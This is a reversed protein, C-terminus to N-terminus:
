QKKDADGSEGEEAPELEHRPMAMLPAEDAAPGAAEDMAEDLLADSDYERVATEHFHGHVRSAGATEAARMCETLREMDQQMASHWRELVGEQEPETMADPRKGIADCVVRLYAARLIRWLTAERLEQATPPPKEEAM